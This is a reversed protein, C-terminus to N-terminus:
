LGNFNNCRGIIERKDLAIIDNLRFDFGDQREVSLIEVFYLGNKIHTIKGSGLIYGKGLYILVFEIVDGANYNMEKNKLM